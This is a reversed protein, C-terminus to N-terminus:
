DSPPMPFLLLLIHHTGQTASTCKSEVGTIVKLIRNMSQTTIEIDNDSLYPLVEIASLM